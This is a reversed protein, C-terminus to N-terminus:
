QTEVMSLMKEYVEPLAKKLSVLSGTKADLWALTTEGVNLLTETKDYLEYQLVCKAPTVKVIKTYITVEQNYHAPRKYQCKLEVLPSIVGAQEIEDYPIGAQNLLETRAQEYWIAYVSHHVFGMQDTEAYRPVIKTVSTM